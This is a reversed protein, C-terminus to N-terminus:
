SASPRRLFEEAAVLDEPTNINFFPNGDPAAISPAIEVTEYGVSDLFARIALPRGDDLWRTLDHLVAVPWLSTAPQPRAAFHAIVPRHGSKSALRARLDAPLFPTDGAVILVHTPASNGIALVAHLGAEIGALPGAFGPRRDPALTLGFPDYGEGERAAVILPAVQGELREIVHAILPRGALEVLPKPTAGGMRSGRGGALILGAPKM